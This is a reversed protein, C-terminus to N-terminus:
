SSVEFPTVIVIAEVVGAACGSLFRGTDGVKGTEPDRFALQFVDNSCFRLAYKLTLHMTVPTLGKWLARVGEANAITTGCHVIGKYAGSKDLQLRTKIVDMPQLSCAEATGGLLAPIVKVHPPALRKRDSGSSAPPESAM